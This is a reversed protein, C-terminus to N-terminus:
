CNASFISDVRISGWLIIYLINSGWLDSGTKLFGINYNMQTHKTNILSISLLIVIYIVPKIPQIVTFRYNGRNDVDSIVILWKNIYQSWENQKTPPICRYTGKYSTIINWMWGSDHYFTYILFACSQMTCQSVHVYGKMFGSVSLSLLVYWTSTACSILVLALYLM